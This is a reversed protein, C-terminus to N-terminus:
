CLANQFHDAQIPAVVELVHMLVEAPSGIADVGHILNSPYHELVPATEREYVAFRNRVVDEDVDDLRNERQARLKMREIMEEIRGCELHVVGLVEIHEDMAIAQASSRPIGDLILLDSHPKYGSQEAQARVHHQWVKITLRDPVLEGRTSYEIFQRGCDSDSDLSRFIDGMALHFFGPISGLIRGQTGKGAGPPGFLLVTKYRDPM